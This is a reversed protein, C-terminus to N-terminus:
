FHCERYSQMDAIALGIDICINLRQSTDLSRGPPSVAFQYLDGFKSTEFVLVPWVSFGGSITERGEKARHLNQIQDIDWCVGQLEVVNPHARFAPHRLISIETILQQYIDAELWDEKQTNPIRKFAFSSELSTQAENIQSTAGKGLLKRHSQWTMHLLPVQFKQVTALFTVFNYPVGTDEADQVSQISSSHYQRREYVSEVRSEQTDGEQQRNTYSGQFREPLLKAILCKENGHPVLPGSVNTDM